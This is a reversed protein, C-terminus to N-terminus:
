DIDYFSLWIKAKISYDLSSTTEVLHRMVEKAFSVILQGSIERFSSTLRDGLDNSKVSTSKKKNTVHFAPDIFFGYIELSFSAIILTIPAIFGCNHWFTLSFKSLVTSMHSTAMSPWKKSFLLWYFFIKIMTIKHKIICIYLIINLSDHWKQGKMGKM